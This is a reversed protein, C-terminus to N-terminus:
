YFKQSTNGYRQPIQKYGLGKMLSSRKVRSQVDPYIASIDRKGKSLEDILYYTFMRQKKAEFDNAFDTSKGATLVTIKRSDIKVKKSKLVPAVGKYLLSGADDKGSFCTDMVVFVQKVNLKALRAYIKDLRLNPELHIFDANMDYPLIYTEGDKGPVGHGAFYIYLNGRSDSLEKILEMKAKLQGSTAQENTLTFINEKPVGMTKYALEAFALASTDAYAVNPNEQYKNIGIALVFSDPQSADTKAFTYPLKSDVVSKQVQAVVPVKYAIPTALGTLLGNTFKITQTGRKTNWYKWSNQMLSRTQHFPPYGRTLVVQEKTMNDTLKGTAINMQMQTSYNELNVPTRSFTRELTGATDVRSHKQM